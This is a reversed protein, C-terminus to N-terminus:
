RAWRQGKRSRFRHYYPPAKVESEAEDLADECREIAEYAATVAATLQNQREAYRLMSAVLGGCGVSVVLGPPLADAIRRIEERTM